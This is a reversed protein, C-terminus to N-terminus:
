QKVMTGAEAGAPWLVSAGPESVAGASSFLSAGSESLTELLRASVADKAVEHGDQGGMNLVVWIFGSFPVPHGPIVVQYWFHHWGAPGTGLCKTLFVPSGLKMRQCLLQLATRAGQSALKDRALALGSGEPQLCKLSPGALQQRLRQKVDPKLWEVTVQEGCLRSQGEMLAKKAMAAARHSSFKLLAMQTLALGPSPLLLAEQLGPGLPQLALLLARRTLARPLGDVSLECKETSLCVLLPCAPRLPHNHLAAIAAQAGRRSCYRAYAFGRNLGSFTMMLRFEYLRGARQFLPILQHEYVDQPLRGIFVESGPPPPSGVWGPPPGGYKRQGNVQVLRVGTERVWAELAAKNEPNVRECWLEYERKSQM